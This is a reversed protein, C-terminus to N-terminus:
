LISNNGKGTPAQGGQEPEEVSRSAALKTKQTELRAERQKPVEAARSAGDTKDEPSGTQRGETGIRRSSQICSSEDKYRGAQDGETVTNGSSQNCCSKDKPSRTQGRESRINGGGQISCDKAWRFATEKAAYKRFAELRTGEQDLNEVVRYAANRKNGSTKPGISPQKKRPMNELHKWDPRGRIQHKWWRIHQM